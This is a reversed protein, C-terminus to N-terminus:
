NSNDTLKKWKTTTIYTYKIKLGNEEIKKLHSFLLIVRLEQFNIKSIYVVIMMIFEIDEVSKTLFATTVLSEM